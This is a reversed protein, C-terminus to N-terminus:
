QCRTRAAIVKLLIRDRRNSPQQMRTDWCRHRRANSHMKKTWCMQLTKRIFVNLIFQSNEFETRIKIVSSTQVNIIGSKQSPVRNSSYLTIEQTILKGSLRKFGSLQREASDRIDSFHHRISTRTKGSIADFLIKLLRYYSVRWITNKSKIERSVTLKNQMRYSKRYVCRIIVRM